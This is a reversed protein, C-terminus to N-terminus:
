ESNRATDRDLLTQVSDLDNNLETQQRNLYLYFAFAIVWLALVLLAILALNQLSREEKLIPSRIRITAVVVKSPAIPL